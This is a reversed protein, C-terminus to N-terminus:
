SESSRNKQGTKGQACLAENRSEVRFEKWPTSLTLLQLLAHDLGQLPLHCTGMAFASTYNGFISLVQRYLIIQYPKDSVWCHKRHLKVYWLIRTVYKKRLHSLLLMGFNDSSQIWYHIKYIMLNMRLENKEQCVRYCFYCSSIPWYYVEASYFYFM